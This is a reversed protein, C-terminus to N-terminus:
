MKEEKVYGERLWSDPVSLLYGNKKDGTVEFKANIRPHNKGKDTIVYKYGERVRVWTVM